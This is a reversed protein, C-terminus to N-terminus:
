KERLNRVSSRKDDRFIIVRFLREVPPPTHLDSFAPWEL